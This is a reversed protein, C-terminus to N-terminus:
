SGAGAPRAARALLRDRGGEAPRVTVIGLLEDAPPETIAFSRTRPARPWPLGGCGGAHVAVPRAPHLAARGPRLLGGRDGLADDRRLARLLLRESRIEM